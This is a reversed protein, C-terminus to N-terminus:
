QGFSFPVVPMNGLEIHCTECVAMLNARSHDPRIRRPKKHHVETAHRTCRPGQWECTQGAEVLVQRRRKEWDRPLTTRQKRRAVGSRKPM